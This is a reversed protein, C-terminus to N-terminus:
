TTRDLHCKRNGLGIYAATYQAIPKLEHLWESNPTETMLKLSAMKLIKKQAIDEDTDDEAEVQALLELQEEKASDLMTDLDNRQELAGDILRPPPTRVNLESTLSDTTLGLTMRM